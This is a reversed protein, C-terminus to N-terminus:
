VFTTETSPKIIHCTTAGGGGRDPRPPSSGQDACQCRGPCGACGSGRWMGTCPRGTAAQPSCLPAPLSTVCLAETSLRPCRCHCLHRTRLPPPPPLIASQLPQHAAVPRPAAICRPTACAATSAWGSNHAATNTAPCQPGLVSSVGSCWHLAGERQSSTILGSVKRRRGVARWGCELRLRWFYGGM